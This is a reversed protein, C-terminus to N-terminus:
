KLWGKRDRLWNLSEKLADDDIEGIAWGLLRLINPHFGEDLLKTILTKVEAKNKIQKGRYLIHYKKKTKSAAILDNAIKAPKPHALIAIVDRASLRGSAVAERVFEPLTLVQRRVKVWRLTKNLETAISQDTRHLGFLKDISKAEEILNLDVRELNDLLNLRQIQRVSLGIRLSSTITPWSLYKCAALRRHGCILRFKFGGPANSCEDIPHVIVPNILGESTITGALEKVSEETFINRCNNDTDVWIQHIPIEFNDYQKDALEM